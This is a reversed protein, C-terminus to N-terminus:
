PLLLLQGAIQEAIGASWRTDVGLFLNGAGFLLLAIALPRPLCAVAQPAPAPPDQPKGRYLTDVARWMYLVTLLSSVVIVFVWAMGQQKWAAGILHWKSIFGASLPIGILGLGGLVFAACLGPATRAAGGLRALSVTDFRYWLGAVTLFMGCKIVAHNVMQVLAAVLGPATGLSLAWAMYGIQGVSSWALMLRLNDQRLAQLAGYLVGAVAAPLLIHDIYLVPFLQGADFLDYFFRILVYLFVKTTTGALFSAVSAPASAYAGPLWAHLPFIACKLMIGVTLFALAARLANRDAVEPLRAQLDTMNLTGTIAYLLGVALLIFSAGITGYILYSYASLLARSNRSAAIMGYSSLSAIEIFVFLNFADRTLLVGNIGAIHLLFATYLLHRRGGSIERRILAHGFGIVLAALMNVIVLVFANLTDLRYEIGWPPQWAGIAYDLPGQELTWILLLCALGAGLWATFAALLWTGRENRLLVCLPAALLPLIVPLVQGHAIAPM